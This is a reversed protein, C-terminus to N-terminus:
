RIPESTDYTPLNPTDIEQEAFAELARETVDSAFVFEHRLDTVYAKGRITRYYTEDEVLVTVPHNEDIHVYNSTKIAEEVITKAQMIDSDAAVALEVIVMMEAQGDNANAVNATFLTANPIRVVTDDPTRLATSRLGIGTVEGYHDKITIKDGVKYPQETILVIGGVIGAFLDKLGFGLAAGLLGSVALVQTTSLRLLPGLILYAATGYILFMVIPIFMKITIRRRNSREAITSLVWQALRALLYASVLVVVINVIIWLDVRPNASELQFIIM